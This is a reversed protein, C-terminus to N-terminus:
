RVNENKMVGIVAVSFSKGLYKGLELSNLNLKEIKVKKLEEQELISKPPTASLYIKEIKNKRLLKLTRKMGLILKGEEFEKKLNTLTAKGRKKVAEM